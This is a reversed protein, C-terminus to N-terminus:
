GINKYRKILIINQTLKKDTGKDNNTSVGCTYLTHGTHSILIASICPAPM